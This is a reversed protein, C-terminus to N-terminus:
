ECYHKRLKVMHGNDSVLNWRPLILKQSELDIKNLWMFVAESRNDYVFRDLVKNSYEKQTLFLQIFLEGNERHWTFHGIGVGDLTVKVTAGATYDFRMDLLFHSDPDPISDKTEKDYTFAGHFLLQYPVFITEINKDKTYYTIHRDFYPVSYHDSYDAIKLGSQHFLEAFMSQEQGDNEGNKYFVPNPFKSLIKEFALATVIGCNQQPHMIETAKYRGYYGCVYDCQKRLMVEVLRRDFHDTNPIYDDEVIIYHSFEKGYQKYAYFFQGYSRDNEPRELIVIKSLIDAPLDYFEPDDSGLPKVVTIQSVWDHKLEFLRQLHKKLYETSPNRRWGSWTAIVYNINM